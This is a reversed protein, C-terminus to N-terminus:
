ERTRRENTFLGAYEPGVNATPTAPAPHVRSRRPDVASTASLPQQVGVAVGAGAAARAPVLAARPTRGSRSGSAIM